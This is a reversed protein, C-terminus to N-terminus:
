NDGSGNSSSDGSRRIVIQEPEISVTVERHGAWHESYTPNDQV